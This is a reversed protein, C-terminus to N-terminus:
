TVNERADPQPGATGVSIQRGRNPGTTSVSIQLEHNLDPLGWQSKASATITSTRCHGSLDPTRQQPFSSPLLSPLLSPPFCSWYFRSAEGPLQSVVRNIKNKSITNGTYSTCQWYKISSMVALNTINSQNQRGTGPYDSGGTSM